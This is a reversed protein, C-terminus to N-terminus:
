MLLFDAAVRSSAIDIEFHLGRHNVFYSVHWKYFFLFLPFVIGNNSPEKWEKELVSSGSTAGGCWWTEYMATVNKLGRQNKICCHCKVQCLLAGYVFGLMDPCTLSTFLKPRNLGNFSFIGVKSNGRACFTRTFRLCFFTKVRTWIHQWSAGLLTRSLHM